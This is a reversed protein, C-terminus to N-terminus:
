NVAAQETLPHSVTLRVLPNELDGGRHVAREFIKQSCRNLGYCLVIRIRRVRSAPMAPAPGPDRADPSQVRKPSNIRPYGVRRKRQTTVKHETLM